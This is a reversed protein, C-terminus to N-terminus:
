TVIASVVQLTITNLSKKLEKLHKVTM